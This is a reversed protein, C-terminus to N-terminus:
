SLEAHHDDGAVAVYAETVAPQLEDVLKSRGEILESGLTILREDWVDLTPLNGGKLGSSRASKLLTNRQRLVRDYDSMVGAFRPNRLVLLEDLFRRRGSPEGRVLALDEPAFLVT